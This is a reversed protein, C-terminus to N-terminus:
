KWGVAECRCRAYFADPSGGWALLAKRMTALDSETSWREALILQRHQELFVDAWYRSFGATMGPTGFTDCSASGVTNRFGAERLLQRQKRGFRVDGGNRDIIRGVLKWFRDLDEHTPHYVDGESDADRLGIVGGPKLVRWLERLAKMPEALHYLVAHALVADFTADAFPLAYISAHHFEVNGIGSRQAEQRGLELQSDEVDVGVVRGQPVISALTISIGGPGCGCDLVHMDPKLHPVFFAADRAATRRALGLLVLPDYGASYVEHRELSPRSSSTANPSVLSNLYAPFQYDDLAASLRQCLQRFLQTGRESSFDLMGGAVILTALPAALGSQLDRRLDQISYQQVGNTVLMKYYSTILSEELGRRQEVSLSGSLFYALDRPGRSRRAVQWDFVIVGRDGSTQSFALNDARFDGHTLTQPAASSQRFYEPLVHGLQKASELLSPTVLEACRQEFRPLMARYIGIRTEAEDTLARLWSLQKLFPSEWFHAHLLGLQQVTLQADTASCGALNDGFEAQNLDELLLLSASTRDDYLDLYPRPVRLPFGLLPALDRYFGAETEYIGVRRLHERVGPDASSLKAFLTLPASSEHESYVIQLRATQGVFGSGAAIPMVEIAEVTARHLLGARHLVETLWGTSISDPTPPISLPDHAMLRLSGYDQPLIPLDRLRARYASDGLTHFESARLEVQEADIFRNLYM